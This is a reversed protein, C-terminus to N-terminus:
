QQSSHSSNSPCHLPYSMITTAAFWLIFSLGGVATPILTTHLFICGRRRMHKIASAERASDALAKDYLADFPHADNTKYATELLTFAARKTDAMSTIQKYASDRALYSLNAPIDRRGEFVRDRLQDFTPADATDMARTGFPALLLITVIIKKMYNDKKAYSM